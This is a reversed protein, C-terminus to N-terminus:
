RNARSNALTDIRRCSVVSCGGFASQHRAVTRLWRDHVNHNSDYDQNSEPKDSCEHLPENLSETFFHPTVLLSFQLAYPPFVLLVVQAPVQLM